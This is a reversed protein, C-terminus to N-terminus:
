QPGPPWRRVESGRLGHRCRRSCGSALGCRREFLGLLGRAETIYRMLDRRATAHKLIGGCSYVAFYNRVPQISCSVAHLPLSMLPASFSRLLSCSTLSLTMPTNHCGGYRRTSAGGRGRRLCWRFHCSNSSSFNPLLRFSGLAAHGVTASFASPSLRFNGLEM